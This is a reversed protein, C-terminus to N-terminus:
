PNGTALELNDLYFATKENASSSFGLWTRTKWDPSVNPLNPFRQPPQGPLTVVLEWTGASQAGLGASVEVHVWQDAPLDILDPQGGAAQRGVWFSPGTPDSNHWQPM